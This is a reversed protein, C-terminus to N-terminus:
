NEKNRIHEDLSEYTIQVKHDFKPGHSRSYVSWLKLIM